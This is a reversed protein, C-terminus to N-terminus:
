RGAPSYRSDEQGTHAPPHLSGSVLGLHHNVLQRLTTGDHRLQRLGHRIQFYWPNYPTDDRRALDGGVQPPPTFVTRQWGNHEDSDPTATWTAETFALRDTHTEVFNWDGVLITLAQEPPRIYRAIKDRIIDRERRANGTPLYITAIDLDGRPGELRLLAARGPAIEIWEGYTGDANTRFQRLFSTSAAIGVGGTHQTEHSWWFSTGPTSSLIRNTNANTSHTEQMALLDYKQILSWCQKWKAKRRIPLNAMLAQTNWSCLQIDGMFPTGHLALAAM